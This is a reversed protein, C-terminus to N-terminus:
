KLFEFSQMLNFFDAATKTLEQPTKGEFYGTEKDRNIM